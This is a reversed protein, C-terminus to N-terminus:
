WYDDQCSSIAPLFAILSLGRCPTKTWIQTQFPIPTRRGRSVLRNSTELGSNKFKQKITTGNGINKNNSRTADQIEMRMSHTRKRDHKQIANTQIVKWIMKWRGMSYISLERAAQVSVHKENTGEKRGEMWENMWGDRWGHMWENLSRKKTARTLANGVYLWSFNKWFGKLIRDSIRGLDKWFRGFIRGFGEGFAGEFVVHGFHMGLDNKKRMKHSEQQIKQPGQRGFDYWFRLFRTLIQQQFAFCYCLTKCFKSRKRKRFHKWFWHNKCMKRFCQNQLFRAAM